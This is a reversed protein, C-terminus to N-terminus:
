VAHNVQDQLDEEPRSGAVQDEKVHQDTHTVINLEAFTVVFVVINGCCEQDKIVIIALVQDWDLLPVAM